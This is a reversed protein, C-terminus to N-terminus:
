KVVWWFRGIVQRQPLLEDVAPIVGYYEEQKHYDDGCLIRRAKPLFHAIDAKCGAYSHDGDIYILDHSGIAWHLLHSDGQIAIIRDAVGISRMNALFTSLTADKPVGPFVEGPWLDICTVRSVRQAFWGASLGYLSGIELVTRIDHVAILEALKDRNEQPFWGFIDALTLMM